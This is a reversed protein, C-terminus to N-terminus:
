FFGNRYIKTFKETVDVGKYTHNKTGQKSVNKILRGDFLDYQRIRSNYVFTMYEGDQVIKNLRKTIVGQNPIGELEKVYHWHGNRLSFLFLGKELGKAILILHTGSEDFVGGSMYVSFIRILDAMGTTKDVVMVKRGLSQIEWRGDVSTCLIKKNQKLIKSNVASEGKDNLNVKIEDTRFIKICEKSISFHQILTDIRRLDDLGFCGIHWIVSSIDKIHGIIAGYYDWDVPYLSHGIVVISNINELGMFFDDHNSIIEQSHKTLSNDADVVFGLATEQADYIMQYDKNCKKRYPMRDEFDYASDSAGAMHGLVFEEKPQGKIKKRSGHIYCIDSPSVGYLDEAFETYNFSLVKGKGIIGQLPRDYTRVNLTEIWKRFRPLLESAITTIPSAAMEAAMYFEADGADEDYAGMDELRDDILFSSCMAGVNFKALANEFDAWLDDVDLYNELYFMLQSNKGITKAFDYYNSKVSHMLDFGNGLICLTDDTACPVDSLLVTDWNKLEEIYQYYKKQKEIQRAAAEMIQKKERRKRYYADRCDPCYLPPMERKQESVRLIFIGGCEKCNIEIDNIEQM